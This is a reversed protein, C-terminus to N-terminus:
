RLNITLGGMFFLKHSDRGFSSRKASSSAFKTRSLHCSSGPPGGKSLPFVSVTSGGRKRPSCARRPIPDCVLMVSTAVRSFDGESCLIAPMIALGDTRPDGDWGFLHTPSWLMSLARVSSSAEQTQHDIEKFVLIRFM